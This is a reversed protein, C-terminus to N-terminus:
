TVSFKSGFLKNTNFIQLIIKKLTVTVTLNGIQRLCNQEIKSGNFGCGMWEECGLICCHNSYNKIQVKTSSTYLNLYQLM